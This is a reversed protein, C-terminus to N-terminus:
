TNLFNIHSIRNNSNQYVIYELINNPLIYVNFDLKLFFISSIFNYM